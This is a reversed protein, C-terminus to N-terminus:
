GLANRKQCTGTKFDNVHILRRRRGRGEAPGGKENQRTHQGQRSTTDHPGELEERSHTGCRLIARGCHRPGRRACGGQQVQWELHQRTHALLEIETVADTDRRCALAETVALAPQFRQLQWSAPPGARRSCTNGPPTHIGLVRGMLHRSDQIPYRARQARWRRQQSAGGKAAPKSCLRNTSVSPWSSAHPSPAATPWPSSSADEKSSFSYRRGVGTAPM